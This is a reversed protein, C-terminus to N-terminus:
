QSRAEDEAILTRLWSEFDPYRLQTAVDDFYVRQAGSKILTLVESNWKTRIKDNVIGIRPDMVSLGGSCLAFIGAYKSVLETLLESTLETNSENISRNFRDFFQQTNM